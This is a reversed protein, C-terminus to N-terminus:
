GIFEAALINELVMAKLERADALPQIEYCM